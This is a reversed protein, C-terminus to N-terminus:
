GQAAACRRALLARVRRSFVLYSAAGEETRLHDLDAAITRALTASRPGRGRADELDQELQDIVEDLSDEGLYPSGPVAAQILEVFAAPSTALADMAQRAFTDPPPTLGLEALM